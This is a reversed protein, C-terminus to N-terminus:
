LAGQDVHAKTGAKFSGPSEQSARKKRPFLFSMRGPSADDCTFECHSTFGLRMTGSFVCRFHVRPSHCSEQSARKRHFLCPIHFRDAAFYLNVIVNFALRTKSTFVSPIQFPKRSARKLQFFIRFDPATPRPDNSNVIVIVAVRMKGSFGCPFRTPNTCCANENFFVRTPPPRDDTGYLDVPFIFPLRM